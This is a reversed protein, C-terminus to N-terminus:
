IRELHSPNNVGAYAQLEGMQSCAYIHSLSM